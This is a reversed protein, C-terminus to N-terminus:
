KQLLPAVAKAAEEPSGNATRIVRLGDPQGIIGKAKQEDLREALADVPDIWLQKKSAALRALDPIDFDRLAGPLWFYNWVNYYHSNLALKYSALTGVTVVGDPRGDYAAAILAWLGGLGEGVLVIKRGKLDDRSKAFDIARIVDFSRLALMTTGFGPCGIAMCDRRWQLPTYGTYKTLKVPPSRDTEGVGRVDISLVTHGDRVLALAACPADPRTPKGKDSAHIILPKTAGATQPKMLLSPVEIGEESVLAIKEATFGDAGFTGVARCPTADRAQPMTLGIRKAVRTRLKATDPEPKYMREARKANITQGSEGGLSKFTCGSETCWLTKVEEPRLPPEAKGEEEKHFYRNMWEYASERKPQKMDHVGQVIDMETLNKDVGLGEYFRQMDEMRRRHGPEEGSDKGVIWRCPRPAILSMVEKDILGQGLLYSNEMSGGPHAAACVKIREDVATILLAMQGGGSNGSAGLKDKDVEPRSCLYDVARICDWTRSGSLSWDVLWAPRGMYHHQSVTLAVLPKLTQPDFYESREGQGTPDLGLVVYGKLVLGLCSEHYLHYGKGDAAHGCTFLIGPAPLKRGKPVYLNATCYYNPQSEFIVKEITYKERDLKGVIKANLPTRAPWEGFFEPLRARTRQQRAKWDAPTKLAALEAERKERISELRRHLFSNMMGRGKHQDQIAEYIRLSPPRTLKAFEGDFRGSPNLEMKQIRCYEGRDPTIELTITSNRQINVGQLKKQATRYSRESKGKPLDLQVTGAERGNVLVKVTSAGRFEDIYDFEIDYKTSSGFFLRQARGVKAGKKVQLYRNRMWDVVELGDLIDLNDAGYVIRKVNIGVTREGPAAELTVDDFWAAGVGETELYIMSYAAGAPVAGELTVQKWDSIGTVRSSTPQGLIKGEVSISYLTLYGSCNEGQTKTWASLKFASGPKLILDCLHGTRWRSKTKERNTTKVCHTGTHAGEAVWELTRAADDPTRKEWFACLGGDAMEFGGNPALDDAFGISTLLLIAPLPSLTRHLFRSSTNAM